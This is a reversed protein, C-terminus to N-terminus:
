KCMVFVVEWVETLGKSRKVTEDGETWDVTRAISMLEVVIDVAEVISEAVLLMDFLKDEVVGVILMSIALAVAVAAIDLLVASMLEILMSMPALLQLIAMVHFQYVMSAQSHRCEEGLGGHAYISMGCPKM